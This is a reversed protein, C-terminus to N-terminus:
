GLRAIKENMQRIIDYIDTPKKDYLVFDLVQRNARDIKTFDFKIYIDTVSKSSHGMAATITEKPIDLEAAATAWSHRAWYMSFAPLGLAGAVEKLVNDVRSTWNHTCSYTDLVNLLHKKGRYKDILESCEKEVKLNYPRNTKARRYEIRGGSIGVAHVMDETNMGILFFSIKFFDVYRQQWSPLEATFLTRLQEVTLARKATPEPRIAFMRFPYILTIRNKLASNFVARINRLHINRANKKPSSIRLFSDFRELWAVDIDDFALIEAHRDFRVIKEITARYIDRTREKERSDAFERFYALFRARAEKDPSLERELARKIESANLGDLLHREQLDALTSDVKYKIRSITLQTARDKATLTVQDWQSPSIKIGTSLYAVQKRLYISIKLPALNNGRSQRSDLYLRTAIM